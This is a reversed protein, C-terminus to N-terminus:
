ECWNALYAKTRPRSKDRMVSWYRALGRATSSNYGVGVRKDKSVWYKAINVSCRMNKYPDKLDDNTQIFDRCGYASQRSSSLSIQFLGTSMVYNGSSDKFDEKYVEEPKFNSEYKMMAVFLHTWNKVTLGNPCYTDQYPLDLEALGSEKVLKFLYDSWEQKPLATKIPAQDVPDSPKDSPDPLDPVSICSSLLILWSLHKM